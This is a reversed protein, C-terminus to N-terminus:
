ISVYFIDIKISSCLSARGYCFEFYIFLLLPFIQIHCFLSHSRFIIFSIFYQLYSGLPDVRFIMESAAFSSLSVMFIIGSLPWYLHHQRYRRSNHHSKFSSSSSSTSPSSTSSSPSAALRRHEDCAMNTQEISSDNIQLRQQLHALM